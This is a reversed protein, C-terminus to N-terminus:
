GMIEEFYSFMKRDHGVREREDILRADYIFEIAKLPRDTFKTIDRISKVLNPICIEELVQYWYFTEFVCYKFSKFQHPEPRFGYNDATVV